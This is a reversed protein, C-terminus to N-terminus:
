GERYTQYGMMGAQGTGSLITGIAGTTGAKRAFKAAMRDSAAGVRLGWAERAADARIRDVQRQVQRDTDATLDAAIGVDLQVGQGALATRQAGVLGRGQERADAAANEGQTIVDRAQMEGVQANWEGIAENAKGAAYQGYAGIGTGVLSLGAFAYGAAGM